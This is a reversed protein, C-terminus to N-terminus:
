AAPPVRYSWVTERRDVTFGLHEYLGLAGTVNHTDVTLAARDMGDAAAAHLSAAICASAVGRGRAAPLVGIQGLYAERVGTAETDADHEYVLSYGVVAGDALALRSVDSRFAKQGTFWTQWAYADREATGMHEVFSANHVQRVEDDRAPDFPVVDVGAVAREAQLGTLPRRMTLYHQDPGFGAREAVRALSTMASPVGFAFRGGMEPHRERHLERSRAVEWAVLARGVGRDRWAPHVRGMLETTYPERHDGLDVVSAWAVLRGDDLVAVTDLSLDVRDNVLFEALGDADEHEGTDDVEEADALLGAVAAMDDTRLPRATLGAPLQSLEPV